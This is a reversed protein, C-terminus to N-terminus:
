ILILFLANGNGVVVGGIRLLSGVVVFFLVFVSYLWKRYEFKQM